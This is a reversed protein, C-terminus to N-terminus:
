SGAVPCSASEFTSKVSVRGVWGSDRGEGHTLTIFIDGHNFQDQARVPSEACFGVALLGAVIRQVRM